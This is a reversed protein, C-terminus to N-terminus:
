FYCQYFNLFSIQNPVWGKLGKVWADNNKGSTLWLAPYDREIMLEQIDDYIQARIGQDPEAAGERILAEVDPEYYRMGNIVSVNSFFPTIYNEPDNYDQLWGMSYAQLQEPFSVQKGIVSGWAEGIVEVFIGLASMDAKFKNAIDGRTDTETNWTYNYSAIPDSTTKTQWWTDAPDDNIPAASGVVGNDKLIQRAYSLNYIPYNKSTNSFPVPAAIPGKLRVAQGKLIEQIVYNYDFAYSMAKRMTVNMYICDLMIYETNTTAEGQYLTIASDTEFDDLFDPDPADLIDVEQALLAGNRTNTDEIQLWVMSKLKPAGRWYNPNGRFRIDVDPTFSEYIFPGTGILRSYASELYTLPPTSTPSMFYMGAYALIALFPGKPENLVIQVEYESLVVTKNILPKGDPTQVLGGWQNPLLDESLSVNFPAPLYDNASWNLFYNLRDYNWKVAEANFPTGDHFTVNQRLTFNYVLSDVSVSPFDTALSPIPEYNPDSLNAKMLGECVQNIVDISASDYAYHPDLDPIGGATGFVLVQERTPPAFVGSFALFYINGVGSAVLLVTVLVLAWDTKTFNRIAKM